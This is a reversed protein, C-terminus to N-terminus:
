RNVVRKAKLSYNYVFAMSFWFLTEAMYSGSFLLFSMPYVVFLLLVIDSPTKLIKVSKKFFRLLVILFAVFFIIGGQQLVEIFLNHPWGLGTKATFVDKYGFLGSGLAPNESIQAFAVKFAEDRGSTREYIDLDTNFFSFVRGFNRSVVEYYEGPLFMLVVFVAVGGIVAFRLLHMSKKYYKRYYYVLLLVGIALTGLGGRGGSVFMMALLYFLLLYCFYRYVKKKFFPFREYMNGFMLMFLCILFCLAAYYSLHQSYYKEGQAIEILLQKISFFLSLSVIPLVIDMWKVVDKLSKTEAYYVAIGIAPVGYAVLSLFVSDEAYGSIFGSAIYVLLIIYSFLHKATISHEAYWLVHLLCFVVFCLICYIKFYVRAGPDEVNFGVISAISFYLMNSFIIIVYIFNRM